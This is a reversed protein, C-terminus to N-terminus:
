SSAGLGDIYLCERGDRIDNVWGAEGTAAKLPQAPKCWCGLSDVPLVQALVYMNSLARRLRCGVCVGDVLVVEGDKRPVCDCCVCVSLLDWLAGSQRRLECCM